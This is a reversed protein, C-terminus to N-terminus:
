NWTLRILAVGQRTLSFQQKLVGADVEVWEPSKLLQLQGARELAAYEEDTPNQPSDLSKWEEFSNSSNQNVAYHHLLVKDRAIGRIILAVKAAEGPM